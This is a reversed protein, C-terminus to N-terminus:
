FGTVKFEAFGAPMGFGQFMLEVQQTGSPLYAFQAFAQSAAIDLSQASSERNSIEVVNLKWPASQPRFEVSVVYPVSAKPVDFVIGVTSLPDQNGDVLEFGGTSLSSYCGDTLFVSAMHGPMGPIGVIPQSPTLDIENSSTLHLKFPSLKRNLLTLNTPRHGRRGKKSLEVFHSHTPGAAAASGPSHPSFVILRERDMQHSIAYGVLGCASVSGFAALLTRARLLRGMDPLIAIPAM